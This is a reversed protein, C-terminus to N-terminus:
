ETTTPKDAQHLAAHFTHWPLTACKVRVPFERVGSFVKLKGLPPNDDQAGPDEGEDTLMYHFRQFLKEAESESKGKLAQTMISASATCIACGKGVFSVDEITDGNLLLYVTLQDGCLPNYGDARRDPKEIERFNRPSKNHDLVVQQYIERLDSM